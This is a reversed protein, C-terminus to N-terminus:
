RICEGEDSCPPTECREDRGCCTKGGQPGTFRETKSIFSKSFIKILEKSECFKCKIESEDDGITQLFENVMGCNKCKYEYIPM